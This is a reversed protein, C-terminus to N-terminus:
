PSPPPAKCGIACATSSSLKSLVDELDFGIAELTLRRSEIKSYDLIDNITAMLTEGSIKLNTLYNRQKDTLETQMILQTMGLVGNM